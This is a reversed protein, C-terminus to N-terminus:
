LQFYNYLGVLISLKGGTKLVPPFIALTVDANSLDISLLSLSLAISKERWNVGSIIFNYPSYLTEFM